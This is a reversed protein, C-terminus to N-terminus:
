SLTTDHLIQKITWVRCQNGPDWQRGIGQLHDINRNHQRFLNLALIFDLWSWCPKSSTPSSSSTVNPINIYLHNIILNPTFSRNFIVLVRPYLSKKTIRDSSRPIERKHSEEKWGKQISARIGRQWLVDQGGRFLRKKAAPYSTWCKNCLHVWSMCFIFRACKFNFMGNISELINVFHPHTFPWWFNTDNWQVHLLKIFSLIHNCFIATAFALLSEPLKSRSCYCYCHYHYQCQQSHANCLYDGSSRKAIQVAPLLSCHTVSTIHICM